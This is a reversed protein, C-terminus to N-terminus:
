PLKSALAEIDAAERGAPKGARALELQRKAQAKDGKELLALAFHYRFRPSNPYDEVLKRYIPIASDTQKKKMYIWALTDSFEPNRADRRRAREIMGQAEELNGNTEALLYAQNNLATPNDPDFQLVKQYTARAQENQGLSQQLYAMSGWLPAQLKPDPPASEAAKQFSALAEPLKGQVQNLQAIQIHLMHSKPDNQAATQLQGLAESPRNAAVYTAALLPRIREKIPSDTLETNLLQVADDVRKQGLYSEALGRLVRLDTTRRQYLAQFAKQAEAYRGQDLQIRGTQIQIETQNPYERALQAIEKNAADFQRNRSLGIARLMRATALGPRVALARDAYEIAQTANGQDYAIEGLLILPEPNNPAIKVADRLEASAATINGFRQYARAAQVRLDADNPSGKAVDKYSDLALRILAPDDSSFRIRARVNKADASDPDRRLVDEVITLAEGYRKQRMKVGVLKQQYPLPNSPNQQIGRTLLRTAKDLEAMGTYYDAASILGGPYRKRDEILLQIAAEADSPRSVQQYHQALILVAQNDDPNAAIRRKLLDEAEAIRKTRFLHSYLLQYVPGYSKNVDIFNLALKEGEAAAGHLFLFPLLPVIVEPQMPKRANAELFFAIVEAPPKNDLQALHGKFRLGQHSKPDLALLQDSVQVLKDYFVKPRSPDAMLGALAIEGLKVRSEIHNPLLEATRNFIPFSEVVEGKALMSVALKYHALGSSKDKQLANRFSIIADQYRAADYHADGAHM